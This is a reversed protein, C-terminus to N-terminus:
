TPRTVRLTPLTADDDAPLLLTERDVVPDQLESRRGTPPPTSAAPYLLDQEGGAPEWPLHLEVRTGAPGSDLVVEGDHADVVAKVVSLGLGTSTPADGARVFPSFVSDRIDEPIGPGDDHVTVVLGHPALRAEVTIGTGAPTHIQANTVLNLVAQALRDPDAHLTVPPPPQVRVRRGEATGSLRLELEEFWHVLEVPRPRAFDDMGSRAIAMLDDVLRGMRRLEDQLIAATEAAVRPDNGDVNQLVELHGRAITIPTRLEHGVSAMFERQRASAAELRELMTNFERALVAVEDSSGPEVVRTDLSRLNTTRAASALSGLPALSRWLTAALLIGGLLLSVGAAAVVLWAAELAESRVPELPAVIQLTGVEAGDLLIPVTSTRVEGADTAVTELVNLDGSPLAGSRFLPELEPPGNAAAMRQGGAFTVITWYSPTSPNLQLYRTVADRLAQESSPAAETPDGLLESMSLEFRDQERAIVVDIDRRGDQLLLEYAIVAAIALSVAFVVMATAPVRVRLSHLHGLLRSM